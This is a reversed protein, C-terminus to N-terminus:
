NDGAAAEKAACRRSCSGAGITASSATAARPSTSAPPSGSSTGNGRVPSRRTSTTSSCGRRAKGKWARSSYGIEQRVRAASGSLLWPQASQTGARVAGSPSARKALRANITQTRPPILLPALQARGLVRGLVRGPRRVPAFHPVREVFLTTVAILSHIDVREHPSWWSFHPDLSDLAPAVAAQARVLERRLDAHVRVTEAM